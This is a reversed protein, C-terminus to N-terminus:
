CDWEITISFEVSILKYRKNFNNSYVTLSHLISTLHINNKSFQHKQSTKIIILSVEGISFCKIESNNRWSFKYWRSFIKMLPLCLGNGSHLWKLPDIPRQAWTNNFEFSIVTCTSARDQWYQANRIIWSKFYNPIAQFPGLISELHVSVLYFIGLHTVLLM